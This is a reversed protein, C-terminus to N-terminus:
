STFTPSFSRPQYDLLALGETVDFVLDQNMRHFISAGFAQESLLGIKSGLNFCNELWQSPLMLIRIKMDLATFVRETMTHYKLIEGGAITLTRNQATANSLCKLIAKAVDDAHIPQRLGTAPAALPLFHYRRIFHAMRTINKDQLCDYVMTPRLITCQVNSLTCWNKIAKEAYDLNKATLQEIRDKSNAKAILSTSGVAVISRVGIFRPLFQVLVWLPLLSIVLANAPAIWNRALTLDMHTFTFGDPVSLTRRSIVEATFGESKLRQMLYPGVLSNGGAIVLPLSQSV